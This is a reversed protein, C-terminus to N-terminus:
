LNCNLLYYLVKKIKSEVHMPNVMYMYKCADIIRFIKLVLLRINFRYIM